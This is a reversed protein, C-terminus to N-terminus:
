WQFPDTYPRNRLIAEMWKRLSTLSQEIDLRRGQIPEERTKTIKSCTKAHRLAFENAQEETNGSISLLVMSNLVNKSPEVKQIIVYLLITPILFQEADAMLHYHLVDEIIRNSRSVPKRCDSRFISFSRIISIFCKQLLHIKLCNRRLHSIYSSKVHHVSFKIYLSHIWMQPVKLYPHYLSLM